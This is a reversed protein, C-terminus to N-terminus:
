FFCLFLFYRGFYGLPNRSDIIHYLLVTAALGIRRIRPRRNANKRHLLIAVEYLAEQQLFAVVDSFIPSTTPTDQVRRM